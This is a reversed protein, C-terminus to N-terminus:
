QGKGLAMTSVTKFIIGLDTRLWEWPSVLRAAYAHDYLVKNRVDEICSDYAQNVQALGTIGPKLGYTREAYFPIADELKNFFGPREPRPGIVSMEGKLVNICQPLEDLRTKRMFRGVRTIRPDDKSAWVAGSKAEADIRMTRFKILDFLHTATPTVRGVRCQRYFLPGRSDLKIALAIPVFLVIMVALAGLGCVIDILRKGARVTAPIYTPDHAGTSASLAPAEQRSIAHQPAAARRWPKSERGALYRVAGIASATHGTLLYGLWTVPRPWRMASFAVSLLALALLTLQVILLETM